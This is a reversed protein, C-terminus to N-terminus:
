TNLIQNKSLIYLIHIYLYVLQYAIYVICKVFLTEQNAESKIYINKPMKELDLTQDEVKTKDLFYYVM